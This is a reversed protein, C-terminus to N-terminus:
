SYGGGGRAAHEGLPGEGEGEGEGAEAGGEREEVDRREHEEGDDAEADAGGQEGGGEGAGSAAGEARARRPALRPTRGCSASGAVLVLCGNGRLQGRGAEGRALTEPTAVSGRSEVVRM